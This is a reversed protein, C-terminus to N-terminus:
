RWEKLKGSADLFVWFDTKYMRVKEYVCLGSSNQELYLLWNETLRERAHFMCLSLALSVYPLTKIHKHSHTFCASPCIQLMKIMVARPFTNLTEWRLLVVSSHPRQGWTCWSVIQQTWMFFLRLCFRAKRLWFLCLTQIQIRIAHFSWNFIHLLLCQSFYSCIAYEDNWISLSIIPTVKLLISPKM